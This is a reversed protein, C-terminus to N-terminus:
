KTIKVIAKIGADQAKIIETDDDDFCVVKAPDIAAIALAKSYKNEWVSDLNNQFVLFDFKDLLDYFELIAMARKKSSNTVLVLLKLGQYKNIINVIENNLQLECLFQDYYSEKLEVIKVFDNMKLSPIITWLSDRTIRWNSLNNVLPREGIVELIAKQYALSNAIDSNVLTGDMDFFLVSYNSEIHSCWNLDFELVMRNNVDTSIWGYNNVFV